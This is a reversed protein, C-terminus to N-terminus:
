VLLSIPNFHLGAAHEWNQLLFKMVILCHWMKGKCYM